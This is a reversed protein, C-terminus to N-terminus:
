ARASALHYERVLYGADALKECVEHVILDHDKTVCIIAIEKLLETDAQHSIQQMDHEIMPTSERGPLPSRQRIPHDSLRQGERTLKTDNM